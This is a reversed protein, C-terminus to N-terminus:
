GAGAPVMIPASLRLLLMAPLLLLLLLLLLLTQWVSQTQPGPQSPATAM